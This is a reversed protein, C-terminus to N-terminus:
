ELVSSWARVLVTLLWQCGGKGKKQLRWSFLSPALPASARESPNARLLDRVESLYMALKGKRATLLRHCGRRCAHLNAHLRRRGHVMFAKSLWSWVWCGIWGVELGCM